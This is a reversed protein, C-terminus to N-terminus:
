GGTCAIAGRGASHAGARAVLERAYRYSKMGDVGFRHAHQASREAQRDYLSLFREVDAGSMATLQVGHERGAREGADTARALEEALAGEWIAVSRELLARQEASLARFRREGIARAAYAGRPIAITNFGRAVEALHLSRLTDIPAVVGDIVGKALAPYVEGMPMDVPDAGLQELVPLLEAPARLRMGQLDDLGNVLRDRSVIGPLNGGQVALVKLGQLERAFQPERAQLCRYLAVQQAFTTLGAYFGAQVRILHAGGRAYIPTIVGVDAVGHRLELLSNEASLLAGAWYPQIRLSGRSQAQVWTMWTRDARSFPHLPSYPSAYSLETVGRPAPQTCGLLSCGLLSGLVLVFLCARAAASM